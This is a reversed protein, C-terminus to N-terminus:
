GNLRALILAVAISGIISIPLGLLAVILSLRAQWARQDTTQQVAVRTRMEEALDDEFRRMRELDASRDATYVGAPVFALGRIEDRMSAFGARMESDLRDVRRAVEGLSIDQAESV